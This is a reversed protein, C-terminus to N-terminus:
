VAHSSAVVGTDVPAAPVVEVNDDGDDSAPCQEHAPLAAM